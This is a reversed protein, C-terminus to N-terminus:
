PVNLRQGVYILNPNALNNASMLANTTAGFRRAISALTDGSQVVYVQGGAGPGPPTVSGSGPIRIKQGVYIKNPDTIGNYRALTNTNLGYRLAIRFM